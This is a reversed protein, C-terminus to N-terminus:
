DQDPTPISSLDLPWMTDHQSVTHCKCVLRHTSTHWCCCCGDIFGEGLVNSAATTDETASMSLHTHEHTLCVWMFASVGMSGFRWHQCNTNPAACMYICLLVIAGAACICVFFAVISVFLNSRGCVCMRAGWLAAASSVAPSPLTHRAPWRRCCVRAVLTLSTLIGRERECVCRGLTPHTAAAKQIEVLGRCDAGPCM